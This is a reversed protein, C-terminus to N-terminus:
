EVNRNRDSLKGKVSFEPLKAGCIAVAGSGEFVMGVWQGPSLV